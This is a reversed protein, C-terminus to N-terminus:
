KTSGTAYGTVYFDGNIDRKIVDGCDDDNVNTGGAKNAWIWNGSASIKAVFIDASGYGTLTTTGLILSNFFHGTVIPNGISDFSISNISNNYTVNSNRAWIWDGNSNLKALYMNSGNSPSTLHIPGLDITYDHYYGGVYVNGNSDCNVAYGYDHYPTGASRVWQFIGSNDIKAIYM